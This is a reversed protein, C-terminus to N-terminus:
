RLAAFLSRKMDEAREREPEWQGPAARAYGVVEDFGDLAEEFRGLQLLCLAMNHHAHVLDADPALERARHLAVVEDLAALAEEHRDLYLLSVGRNYWATVAEPDLALARDFSEIARESGEVVEACVGRDAWLDARTPDLELAADFAALAGAHDGQRMRAYAQTAPLLEAQDLAERAVRVNALIRGTAGDLLRRAEGEPDATPVLREATAWAESAEQYRTLLTLCTGLDKWAEADAPDIAVARRFAEVAEPLRDLRALCVGKGYWGNANDPEVVLAREYVALAEAPRGREILDIGANRLAAAPPAEAAIARAYCASAEDTRGLRALVAGRASWAEAWTPRLEVVRELRRAAEDLDGAQMYLDAAIRTALWNGPDLAMAAGLSGLGEDDGADLQELAMGTAGWSSAEAERGLAVYAQAKGRLADVHRANITLARDFDALAEAHRGVAAHCAGLNAWAGDADPDAATAAEFRPIAEAPRDLQALAVGHAFAREAPPGADLAEATECCPLAAAPDGLRLLCRARRFWAEPRGRTATVAAFAEAAEAHRGLEDLCTGEIFADEADHPALRRALAISDLAEDPRGLALLAQARARHDQAAAPPTALVRQYLTTGEQRRGQRALLAAKNALATLEGPGGSDIARDFAALAEDTRGLQLLCTGKRTWGVGFQPWLALARDYAGTAQEIANNDQLHAGITMWARAIDDRANTREAQTTCADAEDTRGLQRLCHARWLLTAVDDPDLEAARAWSAAAEDRRDLEYLAMGRNHWVRALDPDAEISRDFWAVAGDLDGRAVHCNGIAFAAIAGHGAPDRDRAQDYSEIADAFRGVAELAGAQGYWADAADRDLELAAAFHRLAEAFRGARMSARGRELGVERSVGHSVDSV